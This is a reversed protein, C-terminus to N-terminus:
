KLKIEPLELCRLSGSGAMAVWLYAHNTLAVFLSGSGGM